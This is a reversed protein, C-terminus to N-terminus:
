SPHDAGERGIRLLTCWVLGRVLGASELATQHIGRHFKARVLHLIHRHRRRRVDPILQSRM